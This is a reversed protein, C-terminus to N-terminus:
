RWMKEVWEPAGELVAEISGYRANEGIVKRASHGMLRLRLELPMDVRRAEDNFSHRCQYATYPEHREIFQRRLQEVRITYKPPERGALAKLLMPHVPVARPPSKKERPIQWYPVKDTLVLKAKYLGGPRAGTTLMAAAFWDSQDFGHALAERLITICTDRPIPLRDEEPAKDNHVRLAAFPNVRDDILQENIASTFVIRLYSLYTSITGPATGAAVLSDAYKRAQVRTIADLPTDGVLTAFQKVVRTAGDRVSATPKREKLWAKVADELTVRPRKVDNVGRLWASYAEKTAGQPLKVKGEQLADWEDSAVLSVTDDGTPNYPPQQNLWEVGQRWRQLESASGRLADWQAELTTTVIAARKRAERKDGTGLSQEVWARGVAKQVDLPVRRRYRWISTKASPKKLYDM